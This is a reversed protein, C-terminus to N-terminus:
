IIITGLRVIEEVDVSTLHQRMYGNRFRNVEEMRYRNPNFVREKVSM